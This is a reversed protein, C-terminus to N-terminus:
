TNGMTNALHSRLAAWRSNMQADQTADQSNSTTASTQTLAAMNRGFREKEQRVIRDKKKGVGPKSKFTQM